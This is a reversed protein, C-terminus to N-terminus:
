REGALRTVLQFMYEYWEIQQIIELQEPDELSFNKEQLEKKLRAEENALKTLTLNTNQEEALVDSEIQQVTALLEQAEVLKTKLQKYKDMVDKALINDQNFNEKYPDLLFNEKSLQSLEKSLGQLFNAPYNEQLSFSNVSEM